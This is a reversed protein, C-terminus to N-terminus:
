EIALQGALQGDGPGREVIKPQDPPPPSSLLAPLALMGLYRMEDADLHIAEEDKLRSVVAGTCDGVVELDGRDLNM